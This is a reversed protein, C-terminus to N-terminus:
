SGGFMLKNADRASEYSSRAIKLENRTSMLTSLLGAAGRMWESHAHIHADASTGSWSAHLTGVVKDVNGVTEDLYEILADLRGIAMELETLDVTVRSGM